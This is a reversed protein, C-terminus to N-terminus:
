RGRLERRLARWHAARAVILLGQGAHLGACSYACVLQVLEDTSEYFHVDHSLEGLVSPAIPVFGARDLPIVQRM